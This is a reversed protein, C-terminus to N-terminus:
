NTIGYTGVESPTCELHAIVTVSGSSLNTKLKGSLTGKGIAKPNDINSIKLPNTESTLDFGFGNACAQHLTIGTVTPEDTGAVTHVTTGNTLNVTELKTTGGCLLM